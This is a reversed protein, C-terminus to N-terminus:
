RCISAFPQNGKVPIPSLKMPTESSNVLYTGIGTAVGNVVAFFCGWPNGKCLDGSDEMAQMGALLPQFIKNDYSNTFDRYARMYINQCSPPITLTDLAEEYIGRAKKPDWTLDVEAPRNDMITQPGAFKLWLNLHFTKQSLMHWKVQAAALAIAGQSDPCGGGPGLIASRGKLFKIDADSDADIQSPSPLKLLVSEVMNKDQPSNSLYIKGNDVCICFIRGTTDSCSSIIPKSSKRETKPPIIKLYVTMADFTQPNTNDREQGGGCHSCKGGDWCTVHKGAPVGCSYWEHYQEPIASEVITGPRTPDPRLVKKGPTSTYREIGTRINDSPKKGNCFLSNQHYRKDACGGPATVPNHPYLSDPANWGGRWNTPDVEGVSYYKGTQVDIFSHSSYGKASRDYFYTMLKKYGLYQALAKNLLTWGTGPDSTMDCYVSIPKKGGPNITYTGSPSDPQGKLIEDCSKPSPTNSKAQGTPEFATLVLVCCM